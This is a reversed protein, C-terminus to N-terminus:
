ASAAAGTDGGGEGQEGTGNLAEMLTQLIEVTAQTQNKNAQSVNKLADSLLKRTNARTEDGELQQQAQAAVLRAARKKEVKDEDELLDEALDRVRLREEVFRREKIHDMESESLTLKLQDLQAARIEKAILSSSGRAIVTFDGKIEPKSRFEMNWDYLATMASTTFRDFNRVVDRIPLAAAGMFISANGTTRLAESGGKTTDGLAPPPLATEMDAFELFMKIISQLEPIHSDVTVNQVARNGANVPRGKAEKLYIKFAHPDYEQGDMLLDLDLEIMPGTVASANDLLMRSAEAIAMQSDRIIEPLGSGVTNIDDETYVFTHFPSRSKMEPLQVAKIIVDGIMVVSAAFLKNRDSEPIAVGGAFLQAGTVRGHTELYEFKNTTIDTVNERNSKKSRLDKEWAEETYNGQPYKRLVEDIMDPMFDPRLKLDLLSAKSMPNREFEYDYQEKTKASLDPYYNWVPIVEFAPKLRTSELATWRGDNPNKTWTRVREKTHFPGKMVGLGFIVGSFVIKRALAIYEMEDLEDTMEKSMALSRSEAILVAQKEIDASTPEAKEKMANQIALDTDDKSLNPVESARIAWNKESQPFMMEMIRATSGIAKVRTVKPYARSGDKRMKREMDPDYQGKFQRLNRLWQQEVEYRNKKFVDFTNRLSVGMSDLVRKDTMTAM